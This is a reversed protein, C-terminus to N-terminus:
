ASRRVVLDRLGAIRSAIRTARFRRSASNIVSVRIFPEKEYAFQGKYASEGRMFNFERIAPDEFSQRLVEFLLQKSPSYERYENLFTPKYHYRVGQYLFDLQYAIPRDRDLLLALRVWGRKEYDAVVTQLFRRMAQSSTAYDQDKERRRNHYAALLKPLHHNIDETLDLVRVGLGDRKMRNSRNRVDALKHHLFRTYYSEWPETTDVKYFSRSQDTRIEFGRTELAELLPRWSRSSVPIPFLDLREWDSRHRCLWSALATAVAQEAGPHSLVTFFDSAGQALPRLVRHSWYRTARHRCVQLPLAGILQGNKAQRVLLTNARTEPPGYEIFDRYWTFTQHVGYVSEQVLSDFECTLDGGFGRRSVVQAPFSGRM